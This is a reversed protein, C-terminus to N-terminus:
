FVGLVRRPISVIRIPGSMEDLKDFRKGDLASEMRSMTPPRFTQADTERWWISFGPPATSMMMAQWQQGHRDVVITGPRVFYDDFLRAGITRQARKMERRRSWGFV